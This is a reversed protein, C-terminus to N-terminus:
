IINGVGTQSKLAEMKRWIKEDIQGCAVELFIMFM